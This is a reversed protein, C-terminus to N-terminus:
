NSILKVFYLKGASTFVAGSKDDSLSVESVTSNGQGAFYFDSTKGDILGVVIMKSEASDIPLFIQDPNKWLKVDSARAAIGLDRNNSGDSNIVSLTQRLPNQPNNSFTSYIIKKSDSSFVAEKQNGATNLPTVVKTYVDMLYIKNQNFDANRPIILLYQSDPSFALYPNEINLEALNAARYINQNSADSFILSREGGPPAYYYALRSGDPAWVIDGVNNSFLTESQNIFDYKKFDLLNVTTGTKVLILNKDPSWIIKSKPDIPTSTIQQNTAVTAGGSNDIDLTSLYFLNNSLSQYFVKNDSIAIHAASDAIKNPEPAKVLDIKKSYNQGRSLTIEEKFGVYNDADVRLTHKGLGTVFSASGNLLQAPSNDLTVIANTPAVEVSVKAHIFFLFYILAALFIFFGILVMRFILTQQKQKIKGMINVEPM